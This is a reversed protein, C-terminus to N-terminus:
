AANRRTLVSKDGVRNMAEFEELSVGAGVAVCTLPSKAVQCPMRCENRLRQALGQLLSGGGALTIGHDMIAATFEPPTREIVDTIATAIQGIPEDLASRVEDSSLIVRRPMGSEADKGRVEVSAGEALESASGAEM